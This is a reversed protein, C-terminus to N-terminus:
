DRPRYPRCPFPRPATGRSGNPHGASSLRWYWRPPALPYFDNRIPREPSILTAYEDVVEGDGRMRVIAIECVRAGREPRLGTTEVDLVAFTLSRPDVGTGRTLAGYSFM